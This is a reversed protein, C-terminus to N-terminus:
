LSLPEQFTFWCFHLGLWWKFKKHSATISIAGRNSVKWFVHYKLDFYIWTVFLFSLFFAYGTLGWCSDAMTICIDGGKQVERGDGEETFCNDKFFSFFCIRFTTWKGLGVYVIVLLQIPSLKIKPNNSLLNSM